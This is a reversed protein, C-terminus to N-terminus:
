SNVAFQSHRFIWEILTITTIILYYILDSHIYIHFIVNMPNASQVRPCRICLCASQVRPSRICLRASQVRPCRICLCASQVRPCRICLCASQVMPCRICLCVVKISVSMQPYIEQSHEYSLPECFKIDWFLTRIPFIQALTSNNCDHLLCYSRGACKLKLEEGFCLTHM